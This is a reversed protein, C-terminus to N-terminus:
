RRQSPKRRDWPSIKEQSPTREASNSHANSRANNRSNSRPPKRDIERSNQRGRNRESSIPQNETVQEEAAAHVSVVRSNIEKRNLKSIALQAQEEDPMEIFAYGASRGTARDIALDVSTVEGFQAFAKRVDEANSRYTLNGVYIRM